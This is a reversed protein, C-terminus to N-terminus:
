LPMEEKTSPEIVFTNSFFGPRMWVKTYAVPSQPTINILMDQCRRNMGAAIHMRHTGFPLPICVTERNGIKGMDIGNIYIKFAGASGIFNGKRYLFIQGGDPFVVPQHCRPCITGPNANMVNGCSCMIRYVYSM